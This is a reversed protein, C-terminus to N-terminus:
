LGIIALDIQIMIRKLHHYTIVLVVLDIKVIVM